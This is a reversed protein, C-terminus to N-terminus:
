LGSYGKAILFGGFLTLVGVNIATQHAAMWDSMSTLTAERKDGMAAYIAIPVLMPWVMLAALIFILIVEQRNALDASKIITTGALVLSMLRLSFLVIVFDVAFLTVPGASRLLTGIRSPPKDPDEDHLLVWVALLLLAIGSGLLIVPVIDPWTRDENIVVQSLIFTFLFALLLHACYRGSVVGLARWIGRETSLLATVLIVMTPAIAALALPIFQILVSLL